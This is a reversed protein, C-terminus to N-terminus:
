ELVKLKHKNGVSCEDTDLGELPRAWSHQNRLFPVLRLSGLWGWIRGETVSGLHAGGAGWLNWWQGVARWGPRISGLDGKGQCYKPQLTLSNGNSPKRMRESEECSMCRRRGCSNWNSASSVLSKVARPLGSCKTGWAWASWAAESKLLQMRRQFNHRPGFTWYCLSLSPLVQIQFYVLGQNMVRLSEKLFALYLFMFINLLSKTFIYSFIM